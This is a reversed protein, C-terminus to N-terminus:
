RETNQKGTFTYPKNLKRSKEENSMVYSLASELQLIKNHAEELARGMNQIMQQHVPPSEANPQTPSDM